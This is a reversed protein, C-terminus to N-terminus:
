GQGCSKLFASPTVGTYKKFMQSFYQPNDGCGVQEAIESIKENCGSLFLQKAREMRQSALYSSFKVGTQKMFQKSLYDVNMYLHNEAIWKLSLNPNSLNTDVLTIVRTIFDKSSPATKQSRAIIRNLQNSFFRILEQSNKYQNMSGICDNVQESSIFTQHSSTLLHFFVDTMLAKLFTIDQVSSLLECLDRVARDHSDEKFIRAVCAETKQLFATHNVLQISHFHEIMDIQEYRKLKPILSNLVEALNPYSYSKLEISVAQERFTFGRIYRELEQCSPICDTFFFILTNKVYVMHVPLSPYRSEFYGSLQELCDALHQKELYYIYFIQYETYRFDLIQEYNKILSLISSDSSVSEFILNKIVNQALSKINDQQQKQMALLSRRNYCDEKVASIADIIQNENCPKLLYHQIGFQMAKKAYEFSDYGSLIIFQIGSDIERIKEVLELGSFGPMKIDTLVIDPYYDLITEYAEVGNSCVGVVEIGISNWDIFNIITERIIREDDASVPWPRITKM